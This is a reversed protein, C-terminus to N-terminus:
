RAAVGCEVAVDLRPADIAEVRTCTAPCLQLTAPTAEEDIFWGQEGSACEAGSDLRELNLGALDISALGPDDPWGAIDDVPYVCRESASETAALVGEFLGEFDETCLDGSFGGTEEALSAYEVGESVSQACPTQSVVAHVVFRANWLDLAEFADAFETATMSFSNDDSVVVVQRRAGPRLLDAYDDFHDVVVRLPEWSDVDVDVHRFGPENGDDPCSGSGVPADVCIGTAGSSRALLLVRVDVAADRLGTVLANIQARVGESEEVMSGSGDVVVILDTPVRRPGADISLVDCVPAVGEPVVNVDFVGPGDLEGSSGEDSSADDFSTSGDPPLEPM